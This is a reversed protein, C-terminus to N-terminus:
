PPWRMGCRQCVVYTNNLSTSLEFAGARSISVCLVPRCHLIPELSHVFLRKTTYASALLAWALDLSGAVGRISSRSVLPLYRKRQQYGNGPGCRLGPSPPSTPAWSYRDAHVATLAPRRQFINWALTYGGGSQGLYLLETAMHHNTSGYGCSAQPPHMDPRHRLLLPSPRVDVDGAGIVTVSVARLSSNGLGGVAIGGGIECSIYSQTWRSSRNEADEIARGERQKLTFGFVMVGVGRVSRGVSRSCLQPDLGKFM